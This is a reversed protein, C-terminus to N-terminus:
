RVKSFRLSNGRGQWSYELRTDSISIINYIMADFEGKVIFVNGDPDKERDEANNIFEITETSIKRDDYYSVITDKQIVMYSLTDDLSQWTGQLRAMTGSLGANRNATNSGCRAFLICLTTIIVATRNLKFVHKKV